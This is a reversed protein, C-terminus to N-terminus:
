HVALARVRLGNALSAGHIDDVRLGLWRQGFPHAGDGTSAPISAHHRHGKETVVFREPRDGHSSPLGAAEGVVFDRQELGEGILGDDRDLVHTEELVQLSAITVEDLREIPLGGRGLNETHDALCLGLQLRHELRDDVVRHPQEPSQGRADQLDVALEDAEGRGAAAQGSRLLLQALLRGPRDVRGTRDAEADRLPGDDM